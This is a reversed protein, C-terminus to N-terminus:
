TFLEESGDKINGHGILLIFLKSQCAAIMSKEVFQRTQLLMGDTCANTAFKCENEGCRRSTTSMCEDALTSLVRIVQVQLELMIKKHHNQQLLHAILYDM